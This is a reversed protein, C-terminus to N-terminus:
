DVQTAGETRIRLVICAGKGFVGDMLARYGEVDERRVYAQITGAFGGGHVRFAGEKDALYREAM